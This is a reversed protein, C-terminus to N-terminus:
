RYSAIDSSGNGNRMETISTIMIVTIYTSWVCVFAHVCACMICVYMHTLTKKRARAKISLDVCMVKKINSLM